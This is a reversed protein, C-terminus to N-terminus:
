WDPRLRRPSFVAHPDFAAKLRQELQARVTDPPDFVPVTKDLPVCEGAAQAQVKFLTAYGQHQQAYARPSLDGAHTKVWRCAGLWEVAGSPMGELPALAPLTLRWLWEGANLAFWPHSQDRLTQWFGSASPPQTHSEAELEEVQLPSLERRMFQEAELVAVRAGRLQLWVQASAAEAQTTHSTAAAGCQWLCWSASVPLGRGVWHQVREIFSMSPMRWSLTRVCPPMPLLKLSVDLILGLTGLSGTMGRALDYGAVNKMVEGGFHLVEGRGDMMNMGLVYDRVGGSSMRTPGALASAIVGGVTASGGFCPPDFALSQGTAAVAAAVESWPTGARARLVLETPEHLVIGRYPRMDLVEGVLAQGYFDKSGTGRPRLKTGSSAAVRVRESVSQLWARAPEDSLTTASLDDSQDHNMAHNM